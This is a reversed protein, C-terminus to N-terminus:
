CLAAVKNNGAIDRKRLPKYFLASKDHVVSSTRKGGAVDIFEEFELFDENQDKKDTM